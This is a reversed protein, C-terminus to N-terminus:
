FSIGSFAMFSMAILGTLLMAIGGGRLGDPVNSYRLKWRIAAMTTIALFWGFGSSFGYVVTETFSLSREVFLLSVGLIACNVAILPLFVGLNQQLRPSYKSIIMEVIQVLAAIVGIFVVYNLFSLDVDPHGAWSLAGDKLLYRHVLWNLPASATMVFIVALGLGVAPEMKRSIVLFPCLGLFYALLINDVFVSRIGLSFLHEIM